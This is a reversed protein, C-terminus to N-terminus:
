SVCFRCLNDLSRSTNLAVNGSYRIAKRLPAFFCRDSVSHVVKLLQAFCCRETAIIGRFIANRFPVSLQKKVDSRFTIRYLTFWVVVTWNLKTNILSLCKPMIPKSKMELHKLKIKKAKMLVDRQVATISNKFHFSNMTRIRLRIHINSSDHNTCRGKVKAERKSSKKPVSSM